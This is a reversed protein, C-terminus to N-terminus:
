VCGCALACVGEDLSVTRACVCAAPGPSVHWGTHPCPVPHSVDQGGGLAVVGKRERQSGVQGMGGQGSAGSRSEPNQTNTQENTKQRM